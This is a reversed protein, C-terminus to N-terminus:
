FLDSSRQRIQYLIMRRVADSKNPYSGHLTRYNFILVSGPACGRRTLESPMWCHCQAANPNLVTTPTAGAPAPCPTAAELPYEQPPLYLGDRAHAPVPQLHSGARLM